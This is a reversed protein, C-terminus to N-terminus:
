KKENELWKVFMQFFQTAVIKKTGSFTALTTGAPDLIEMEASDGLMSRPGNLLILDGNKRRLKDLAHNKGNEGTELAFPVLWQDALKIKGLEAFIDPTAIFEIVMSFDDNKKIKESSVKKPRFDCPAAAGIAGVCDPFVQLCMQLMEDTTTVPIVTAEHPYKLAVQGTVITVEFGAAL